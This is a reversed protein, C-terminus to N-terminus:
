VIHIHRRPDGSYNQNLVADMTAKYTVTGSITERIETLTIATITTIGIKIIVTNAMVTTIIIVIVVLLDVALSAITIPVQTAMKIAM